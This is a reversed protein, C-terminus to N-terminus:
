LSTTLILAPIVALIESERFTHRSGPSAPLHQKWHISLFLSYETSSLKYNKFVPIINNIYKYM